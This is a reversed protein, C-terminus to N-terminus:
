NTRKRDGWLGLVMVIGKPTQFDRIPEFGAKLASNVEEEGKKVDTPEFEVGIYKIEKMKKDRDKEAEEIHKSFEDRAHKIEDNIKETIRDIKHNQSKVADKIESIESSISQEKDKM